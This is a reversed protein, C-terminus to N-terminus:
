SILYVEYHCRSVKKKRYELRPLSSKLNNETELPKQIWKQLINGKKGFLAEFILIKTIFTKRKKMRFSKSFLSIKIKEHYRMVKFSIFSGVLM